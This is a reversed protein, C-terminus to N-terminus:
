CYGEGKGKWDKNTPDVIKKPKKSAWGGGKFELSPPEFIRSCEVGCEPCPMNPKVDNMSCTVIVEGHEPCDFPYRM